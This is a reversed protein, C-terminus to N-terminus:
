VPTGGSVVERGPAIQRALMMQSSVGVLRGGSWLDAETFVYGGALRRARFDALIWEDTPPEFLHATLELSVLGFFPEDLSYRLWVAPAPLDAVPLLALPDLGGHDDLPPVLYRNWRAYRAPQGPEWGEEWPLVGLATRMDLHDFLPPMGFGGTPPMGTSGASPCDLANPVDPHVADVHGPGGRDRTFLSWLRLATPDQGHSRAGVDVHATIGGVRAVSADIVLRGTEPRELFSAHLSSLRMGDVGHAACAARVATAVLVGGHVGLPSNWSPPIDAHYRGPVHADATVATAAGFHGPIEDAGGADTM